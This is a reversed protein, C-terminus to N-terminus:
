SLRLVARHWARLKASFGSMRCSWQWADFCPRGLSTTPKAASVSFSISWACPWARGFPSHGSRRWHRTLRLLPTKPPSCLVTCRTDALSANFAPRVSDFAPPPARAQHCCSAPMATCPMVANADHTQGVACVQRQGGIFWPPRAPMSRRAASIRDSQLGARADQHRGAKGDCQRVTVLRLHPRAGAKRDLMADGHQIRGAGDVAIIAALDLHRQDIVPVASNTMVRPSRMAWITTAATSCTSSSSTAASSSVARPSPPKPETPLASIARERSVFNFAVGPVDHHRLNASGPLVLQLVCGHQHDASASKTRRQQEIERRRANARIPM